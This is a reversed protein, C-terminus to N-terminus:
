EYFGIEYAKKYAAEVVSLPTDDQIMHSGSFIYGGGPKLIEFVRKLEEQIEEENKFPLAMATDLGGMVSLKDAYKEKMMKLDMGASEQVPHLADVGMQVVGDLVQTIDGDSHLLVPINRSKAAQVIKKEAPYILSWWDKPNFLLVNNQGWDDSLEIVDAGAEIAKEVTKASWDAMRQFLQGMKEKELALNVLVEEMGMHFQVLEFVGWVHVFVAKKGKYQEVAERVTLFLEPDASTEVIEEGKPDILPIKLLDDIAITEKAEETWPFNPVVGTFIDIHLMESFEAVSGYAAEVKERVEPNWGAFFNLPVRDPQGHALVTQVRELSTQKETMGM